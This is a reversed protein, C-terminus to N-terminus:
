GLVLGCDGCETAHGTLTTGCAPCEEQEGEELAPAEDPLIQSAITGDLERAAATDEAEVYLGFLQVEGFVDPNQGQPANEGSSMEVRHPVGLEELGDSLARVWALPAIRICELASVPPLAAVEEEAPLDHLPVLAVDCDSCLEATPMHEVRCEPCVKYHSVTAM